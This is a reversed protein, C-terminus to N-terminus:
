RLAKSVVTHFQTLVMEDLIEDTLGTKDKLRQFFKDNLGIAQLCRKHEAPLVARKMVTARIEDLNSRMGRLDSAMGPPLNKGALVVQLAPQALERCHKDLKKFAEILALDKVIGVRNGAVRERAELILKALKANLCLQAIAIDLVHRATAKESVENWKSRPGLTDMASKLEHGPVCFHQELPKGGKTLGATLVGIVEGARDFVPGGSNGGGVTIGEKSVPVRIQIFPRGNLTVISDTTGRGVSNVSALGAVGQGPNGIVTVEKGKGAAFKTHLRLVAQKADPELQLLALDRAKDEYLLRAKLVEEIGTPDIFRVTVNKVFEDRIVHSNTAVVSPLVVFGSGHGLKGQVVAVSTKLKEFDVPLPHPAPKPKRPQPPPKPEAKVVTKVVEKQEEKSAVKPKEEPAPPPKPTPEAPKPKPVAAVTNPAPKGSPLFFAALSGGLVLLVGGVAAFWTWRPKALRRSTAPKVIAGGGTSTALSPAPVPPPTLSKQGPVAVRHLCAPCRSHLGAYEDKVTYTKGCDPNDCAFRISM